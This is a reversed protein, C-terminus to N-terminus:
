TSHERVSSARSPICAKMSFRFGCYEPRYVTQMDRPEAPQQEVHPAPQIRPSARRARESHTDLPPDARVWRTRAGQAAFTSCHAGWEPPLSDRGRATPLQLAARASSDFACLANNISTGLSFFARFCSPNTTIAGGKQSVGTYFALAFACSFKVHM